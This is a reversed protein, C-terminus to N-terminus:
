AAPSSAPRPWRVLIVTENDQGPEMQSKACCARLLGRVVEPETLGEALGARVFDVVGQRSMREFLGDCAVVLFEDEASPEWAQVHIDPTAIVKQARAPLGANAKYKFDGLARSLNLGADIRYCPGYRLVSGGAGRIRVFEAPDEPKHDESLAVARGGRCLIARSDGTNAVVIRGSAADALAVCATSGQRSFPHLFSRGLLGGLGLPGAAFAEDLAEVTETLARGLDEGDPLADLRAALCDAFVAELAASVDAGGHGDFVAFVGLDGAKLKLVTAVSGDEMSPRWGRMDACTWSLELGPGDGARLAGAGERVSVEFGPAHHVNSTAGAVADAVAVLLALGCASAAHRPLAGVLMWDTAAGLCALGCAPLAVTRWFPMWVAPRWAVPLDVKGAAPPASLAVAAPVDKRPGALPSPPRGLTSCHLVGRRDCRRDPHARSGASRHPGSRAATVTGGALSAASALVAPSAVVWRWSHLSRAAWM